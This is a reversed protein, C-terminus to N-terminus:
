QEIWSPTNGSQEAYTAASGIQESLIISNGQQEALSIAEGARDAYSKRVTDWRSNYINGLLDWKTNGGDWIAETPSVQAYPASNGSEETYM